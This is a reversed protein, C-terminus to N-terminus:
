LTIFIKDIVHIYESLYQIMLLYEDKSIIIGKIQEQPSKDILIKLIEYIDVNTSYWPLQFILMKYQMIDSVDIHTYEKRIHIITYDTIMNCISTHLYIYPNNIMFDGRTYITIINLIIKVCIITNQIENDNVEKKHKYTFYTEYKNRNTILNNEIKNIFHYVDNIDFSSNEIIDYLDKTEICLNNLVCKTKEFNAISSEFIERRTYKLRLIDNLYKGKNYSLHKTINIILDEPIINM